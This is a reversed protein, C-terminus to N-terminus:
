AFTVGCWYCITYITTLVIIGIAAGEYGDKTKSLKRLRGVCYGILLIVTLTHM